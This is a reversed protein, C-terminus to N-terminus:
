ENSADEALWPYQQLLLKTQEPGYAMNRRSGWLGKALAELEKVRKTQCKHGHAESKLAAELEAIHEVPKQITAKLGQEVLLEAQSDLSGSGRADALAGEKDGRFETGIPDVPGRDDRDIFTSAQKLEAVEAELDRREADLVSQQHRHLKVEAELGEREATVRFLERRLEKIRTEMECDGAFELRRRAGTSFQVLISRGDWEIVTAGVIRDSM